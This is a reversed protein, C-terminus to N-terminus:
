RKFHSRRWIRDVLYRKQHGGHCFRRNRWHYIRSAHFPPLCNAKRQDHATIAFITLYSVVCFLLSRVVCFLLSRYSEHVKRPILATTHLEMSSADVKWKKKDASPTSSSFHKQLSILSNGMKNQYGEDLHAKLSQTIAAAVAGREQAEMKSEEEGGAGAAGGKMAEDKVSTVSQQQQRCLGDDTHIFARAASTGCSMQFAAADVPVSRSTVPVPELSVSM